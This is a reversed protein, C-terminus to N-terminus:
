MNCFVDAYTSAKIDTTEMICVARDTCSIAALVDRRNEYARSVTWKTNKTNSHPEVTSTWILVPTHFHWHGYHAYIESRATM